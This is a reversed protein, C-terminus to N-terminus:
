IIPHIEEQDPVFQGFYAVAPHIIVVAPNRDALIPIGSYGTSFVLTAWPNHTNKENKIM